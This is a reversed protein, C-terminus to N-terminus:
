KIIVLIYRNDITKPIDKMFYFDRTTIISNTSIDLVCYDSSSELYGLSIGQKSNNKFKNTKIIILSFHKIFLCKLTLFILLDIIFYNM